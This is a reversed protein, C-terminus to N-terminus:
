SVTRDRPLVKNEKTEYFSQAWLIAEMDRKEPTDLM